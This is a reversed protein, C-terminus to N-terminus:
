LEELRAVLAGILQTLNVAGGVTALLRGMDHGPLPAAADASAGEADTRPGQLRQTLEALRNAINNLSLNNDAVMGELELIAGRREQSIAVRAAASDSEARRRSTTTSARGRRVHRSRRQTRAQKNRSNM